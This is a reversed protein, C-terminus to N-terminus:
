SCTGCGGNFEKCYAGIFFAASKLPASTAGVEKVKPITDPLPAPDRYPNSSSEGPHFSNMTTAATPSTNRYYHQGSAIRNPSGRSRAPYRSYPRSIGMKPLFREGAAVIAVRELARTLRSDNRTERCTGVDQYRAYPVTKRTDREKGKWIRIIWGFGGLDCGLIKWTRMLVCLNVIKRARGLPVV